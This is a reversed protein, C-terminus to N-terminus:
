YGALSDMMLENRPFFYSIFLSFQLSAAPLYRAATSLDIAFEFCLHEDYKLTVLYLIIVLYKYLMTIYYDLILPLISFDM